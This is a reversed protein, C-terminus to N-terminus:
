ELGEGARYGSVLAKYLGFGHATSGIARVNKFGKIFHKEGIGKYMLPHQSLFEENLDAEFDMCVTARTFPELLSDGEVKFGTLLGGTAIFLNDAHAMFERKGKTGMKGMVRGDEIREVRAIDLMEIRPNQTAKKRLARILRMGLVSPALAYEGAEVGLVNCLKKRIEDTRSIGLIPPLLISEAKVERLADCLADVSGEDNDLIRAMEQLSRGRMFEIPLFGDPQENISIFAPRGRILTSAQVIGSKIDRSITACDGRTYPCETANMLNIFWEEAEVDGTLPSFTGSSIATAGVGSSLLITDGHLRLAAVIGALGGGVVINDGYLRVSRM